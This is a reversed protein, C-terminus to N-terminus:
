RTAGDVGFYNRLASYDVGNPDTPDEVAVLLVAGTDLEEVRWAPAADLRERGVAHAFAPPFLLLWSVDDLRAAELGDTSVPPARTDALAEVHYPDLGYVFATHDRTVGYLEKVLELLTQVQTEQDGRQLQDVSVHMESTPVDPIAHSRDDVDLGNAELQVFVSSGGDAFSLRLETVGYRERPGIVDVDERDPRGFHDAIQEFLAEPTADEYLFDVYLAETM